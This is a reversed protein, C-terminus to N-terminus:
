YSILCKPRHFKGRLADCLKGMHFKVFKDADDLTCEWVSHENGLFSVLRGPKRTIHCYFYLQVREWPLVNLVSSRTKIEYCWEADEGDIQGLVCFQGDNFEKRIKRQRGFIKTNFRKEALDTNKKELLIGRQKQFFAYPKKHRVGTKKCAMDVIKRAHVRLNPTIRPAKCFVQFFRTKRLLDRTTDYIPHDRPKNHIERLATSPTKYDHMGLLASIQTVPVYLM